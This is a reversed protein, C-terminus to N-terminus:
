SDDASATTSAGNGGKKKAAKAVEESLESQLLAIDSSRRKRADAIQEQLKEVKSAMLSNGVARLGLM